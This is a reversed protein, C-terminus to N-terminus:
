LTNLFGFLEKNWRADDIASHENEQKPFKSHNKIASLYDSYSNSKTVDFDIDKIDLRYLDTDLFSMAKDDMMQKLDKCYMPFGNPLDIMKGFLWCFVVWDYDAYYAYFEPEPYENPIFNGLFLEGGKDKNELYVFNRIESAIQRNTKGYHNILLKLNKFSFGNKFLSWKNYIFGDNESKSYLENFIPKLVNERLWYVKVPEEGLDHKWDFRNWAEELNFDNSIAYYERGYEAVIGISILDITNPTQKRFLSIPFKEQQPGELFETDIFYKM